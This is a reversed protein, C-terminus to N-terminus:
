TARMCAHRPSPSLCHGTEVRLVRNVDGGCHRKHDRDDHDHLEDDTHGGHDEGDQEPTSHDHTAEHEEDVQKALATATASRDWM